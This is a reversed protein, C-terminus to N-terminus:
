PQQNQSKYFKIFDIVALWVAEIKTTHTIALGWENNESDVFDCIFGDDSNNGHIRSDYGMKEIKEVVPMLWDWSSNYDYGGIRLTDFDYMRMAWSPLGSPYPKCTLKDTVTSGMFEAILKNGEELPSYHITM